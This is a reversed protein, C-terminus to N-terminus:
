PLAPPAFRRAIAMKKELLNWHARRGRAAADTPPPITECNGLTGSIGVQRQYLFSYILPLLLCLLASFLLALMETNM